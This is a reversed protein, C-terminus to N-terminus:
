SLPILNKSPEPVQQKEGDPERDKPVPVVLFADGDNLTKYLPALELIGQRSNESDPVYAVAAGAGGEYTSAYPYEDRQLKEGGRTPYLSTAARRRANWRTRDADFHLVPPKGLRFADLTHRYINPTKSEQVLHIGKIGGKSADMKQIAIFAIKADEGTYKVGGPVNIMERGDPDIFRIPNNIVYNYPSWRRGKEALPDITNWRGIVPDYFRAGYDYVGLNEQFEKKNYLYENKPSGITGRPIDLGFPYYDDQQVQRAVGSGTDFTVRSNGLNDALSYEYNYATTGNPLARGEDTQIFTITGNDYQRGGIYDTTLTGATRRLKQGSADYVYTTNLEPISQPLNL